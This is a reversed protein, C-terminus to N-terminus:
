ALRSMSKSPLSEATCWGERLVELYIRQYDLVVTNLEFRDAIVRRAESGFRERLTPDRLLRIVAAAFRERDGAPVLYGTRGNQVIEPNGGVETAVVPVGHRMSELITISLGESFSTLVSLDSLQYFRHVDKRFGPMYFVDDIMLMRALERFEAERQGTGILIFRSDAVEARILAIAHLFEKVGKVPRDYNAVMIVVRNRATIGLESRLEELRADALPLHLPIGNHVVELRAEPLGEAERVFDRVAQSVCIVRDPLHRTLALWALEHPGLDFGMDERNEVLHKVVGRAKLLRGYIISWFFYTHLIDPAGTRFLRELQRYRLFQRFPYKRPGSPLDLLHHRVPLEMRSTSPVESFIEAQWHGSHRAALLDLLHHGTGGGLDSLLYTVKM